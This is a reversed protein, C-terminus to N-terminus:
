CESYKIPCLFNLPSKEKFLFPYCFFNSMIFESKLQYKALIYYKKLM